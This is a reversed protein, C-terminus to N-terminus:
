ILKKNIENMGLIYYVAEILLKGRRICDDENFRDIDGSTMEPLYYSRFMRTKDDKAHYTNTLTRTIDYQSKKYIDYKEQENNLKSNENKTLLTLNGM